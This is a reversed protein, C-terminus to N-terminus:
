VPSSQAAQDSKFLKVVPKQHVEYCTM